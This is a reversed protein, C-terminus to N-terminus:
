VYAGVGTSLGFRHANTLKSQLSACQCAGPQFSDLGITRVFSGDRVMTSRTAEWQWLSPTAAWKRGRSGFASPGRQSDRSPQRLPQGLWTRGIGATGSDDNQRVNLFKSNKNFDGKERERERERERQTLTLNCVLRFVLKLDGVV